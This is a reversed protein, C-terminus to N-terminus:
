KLELFQENLDILIEGKYEPFNTMITNKYQSFTDVKDLTEQALNLYNIMRTFVENNTPLGHGPLVLNWNRSNLSTLVNKWNEFEQQAIFLHVDNYAIDQTIIINQEVLEITTIYSSETDAVKSVRFTINDVEFDGEELILNPIIASDNNPVLDGLASRSREITDSSTEQLESLVEKIAYVKECKFVSTGFWHDPHSHSIIVKEIPKNLKDVFVKVENAYPLLMQTDIIILHADTEIIHTNVSDGDEPATYTHISVKDFKNSTITM